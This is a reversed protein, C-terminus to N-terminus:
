TIFCKCKNLTKYKTCNYVRSNHIYIYIYIHIKKISSFNFKYKKNIIIQDKEQNIKNVKIQINEEM